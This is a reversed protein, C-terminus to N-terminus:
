NKRKKTLKKKLAISSTTFLIKFLNKQYCFTAWEQAAKFICNRNSLIENRFLLVMEAQRAM